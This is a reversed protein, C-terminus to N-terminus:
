KYLRFFPLKKILHTINKRPGDCFNNKIQEAKKLVEVAQKCRNKAKFKLANLKMVKEIQSDLLNLTKQYNPSEDKSFCFLVRIYIKALIIRKSYFNFDTADDGATVWMLNATKYANKFAGSINQPHLYFHILKQVQRKYEQNIKLRIKVLNKIKDRIKMSKFDVGVAAKQMKNDIDRIFFDAIDGLGNEFIFPLFKIDIESKVLAIELAKQNWGEFLCIELFHHLIKQKNTVSDILM